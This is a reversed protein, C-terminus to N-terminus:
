RFPSISKQSAASGRNMINDLATVNNVYTPVHVPSIMELFEEYTIKQDANADVRRVIAIIEEDSAFHGNLRLFSQISRHSLYGEQSVDCMAFATRANWDHKSHLQQKQSELKLHMNLERELFETLTKEVNNPLRQGPQVASAQRQSAESRLQLNDCPLLMQM